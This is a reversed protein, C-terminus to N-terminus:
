HNVILQFVFREQESQVVVFYEGSPINYTNIEIKHQGSELFMNLFTKLLIGNLNILDITTNNSNKLYFELTANGNTPNPYITYLIKNKESVTTEGYKAPYFLLHEGISSIIYKGDSTLDFNRYSGDLYQYVIKGTNIDWVLLADTGTGNSTVIYKGDPSFEMGTLSPGNIQLTQVLEKTITNFIQVGNYKDMCKFAIMKCDNSLKYFGKDSFADLSDLTEISYIGHYVVKKSESPSGPYIYTRSLTALFSKNDCNLEVNSITFDELYEESPFIYTKLIKKSILDWERFGYTVVGIVKLEDKSIAIDGISLTDFELTDIAKFEKTEFVILRDRSPALQIFNKDQNFFHVEANFPLRSIQEGSLTKYVYAIAYGHAVIMSDTNSMKCQYFGSIQDTTKTWITDVTYDQVAKCPSSISFLLAALFGILILHKRM